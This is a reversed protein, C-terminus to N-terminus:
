LNIGPEPIFSVGCVLLTCIFNRDPPRRIHMGVLNFYATDIRCFQFDQRRRLLPHQQLPDFVAIHAGPLLQDAAVQFQHEADHLAKHVPFLVQVVQELDATDSQDFGNVVKIWIQLYFKGSIRYRHDDPLDASIQTVVVTDTHAAGEAVSGVFRDM